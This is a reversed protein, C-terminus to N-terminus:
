SRVVTFEVPYINKGMDKIKKVMETMEPNSASQNFFKVPILYNKNPDLEMKLFKELTVYQGKEDEYRAYTVDNSRGKLTVIVNEGEPIHAVPIASQLRVKNIEDAEIAKGINNVNFSWKALSNRIYDNKLYDSITLKSAAFEPMRMVQLAQYLINPDIERVAGGITM